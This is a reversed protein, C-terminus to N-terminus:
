TIRELIMRQVHEVYFVLPTRCAACLMVSLVPRPDEDGIRVEVRVPESPWEISHCADCSM